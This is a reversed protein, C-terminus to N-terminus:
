LSVPSSLTQAQGTVVVDSVDVPVRYEDAYSDCPWVGSFVDMFHQICVARAGTFHQEHEAGTSDEFQVYISTMRNVMRFSTFRCM